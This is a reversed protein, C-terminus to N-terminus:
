LNTYHLKENLSSFLQLYVEDIPIIVFKVDFIPQREFFM